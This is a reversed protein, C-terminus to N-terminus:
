GEHTVKKVTEVAEREANALIVRVQYFATKYAEAESIWRILPELRPDNRAKLWAMAEGSTMNRFDPLSM